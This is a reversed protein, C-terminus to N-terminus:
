KRFNVLLITFLQYLLYIFLLLILWIIYQFKWVLWLDPLYISLICFGFSSLSVKYFFLLATVSVLLGFAFFEYSTPWWLSISLLNYTSRLIYLGYMSIISLRVQQVWSEVCSFIHEWLLNHHELYRYVVTIHLRTVNKNGPNSKYLYSTVSRSIVWHDVKNLLDLKLVLWLYVVHVSNIM